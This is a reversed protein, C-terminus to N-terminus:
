FVLSGALFLGMTTPEPTPLAAMIADAYAAMGWSGYWGIAPYPAHLTISDGVFLCSSINQAGVGIPIMGSIIVTAYTYWTLRSM